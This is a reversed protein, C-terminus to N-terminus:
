PRGTCIRYASLDASWSRMDETEVIQGHEDRFADWLRGSPVGYRAEWQDLRARLEGETITTRKIAM